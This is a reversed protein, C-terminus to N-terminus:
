VRDFLSSFRVLKKQPQKILFEKSAQSGEIELGTYGAFCNRQQSSLVVFFAPPLVKRLGRRLIEISFGDFKSM